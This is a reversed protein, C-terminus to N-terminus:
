NLRMRGMAAHLKRLEEELTEERDQHHQMHFKMLEAPYIKTGCRLCIVAQLMTDGVCLDVRVNSPTTKM